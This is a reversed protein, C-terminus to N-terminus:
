IDEQLVPPEDSHAFAGRLRSSPFPALRSSVALLVSSAPLSRDVLSGAGIVCDDGIEIHDHTAANVGFFCRKGVKVGGAIVVHSAIFTHDEIVVHHGIHNGSWLFVNHGIRVFPQIVNNELIFCNEGHALGPWVTARSSVYSAMRYGKAKAQRCKEARLRNLRGYGVAVFLDHTSPPFEKEIYEFPMVPLGHWVSEKLHSADVTFAAVKRSSDHRFYFCAIEALESAGFIVLPRDGRAEMATTNM